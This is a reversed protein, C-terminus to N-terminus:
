KQLDDPEDMRMARENVINRRELRTVLATDIDVPLQRRRVFGDDMKQRIPAVKNGSRTQIETFEDALGHHISRRSKDEGLHVFRTVEQRTEVEPINAHLASSRYPGYRGQQMSPFKVANWSYASFNPVDLRVYNQASFDIDQFAPEIRKPRIIDTGSRRDETLYLSGLDLYPLPEVDM